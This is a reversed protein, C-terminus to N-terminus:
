QKSSQLTPGVIGTQQMGPIAAQPPSLRGRASNGGGGVRTSGSLNVPNPASLVTSNTALSNTPANNGNNLNANGNNGNKLSGTSSPITLSQKKFYNTGQSLYNPAKGPAATPQLSLSAVSTNGAPKPGFTFMSNTNTVTNANGGSSNGSSATVVNSGIASGATSGINVNRGLSFPTGIPFGLNNINAMGPNAMGPASLHTPRANAQLPKTVTETSSGEEASSSSSSSSTTLVATTTLLVSGSLAGGDCQIQNNNSDDAPESASASQIVTGGPSIRQNAPESLPVESETSGALSSQRQSSKRSSLLPAGTANDSDCDTRSTSVNIDDNDNNDGAGGASVAVVGEKSGARSGATEKSVTVSGGKGHQLNRGAQAGIGGGRASSVELMSVQPLSGRSSSIGVAANSQAIAQQFNQIYQEKAALLGEPSFAIPAIYRRVTNPNGKTNAKGALASNSNKGNTSKGNNINGNNGNATADSPPSGVVSVLPPQGGGSISSAPAGDATGTGDGGEPRQTVSDSNKQQIASTGESDCEREGVICPDGLSESSQTASPTRLEDPNHHVLSEDPNDSPNTTMGSKDGGDPAASAIKAGTEACEEDGVNNSNQPAIGDICPAPSADGEAEQAQYRNRDKQQETATAATVGTAAAQSDNEDAMRETPSAVREAPAQECANDNGTPTANEFDGSINHRRTNSWDSAQGGRRTSGGGGANPTGRNSAGQGGSGGQGGSQGGGSVNDPDDADPDPDDICNDAMWQRVPNEQGIFQKLWGLKLAQTIRM